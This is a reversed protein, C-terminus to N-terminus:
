VGTPQPAEESLLHEVEEGDAGAGIATSVRETRGHTRHVPSYRGTPLARDAAAAAPYGRDTPHRSVHANNYRDPFM